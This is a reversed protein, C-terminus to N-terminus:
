PSVEPFLFLPTIDAVKLRILESILTNLIKDDTHSFHQYKPSFQTPLAQCVANVIVM